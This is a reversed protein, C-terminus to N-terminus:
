VYYFFIKGIKKGIYSCFRVFQENFFLFVLPVANEQCVLQIENQKLYQKLDNQKLIRLQLSNKIYHFHFGFCNFFPM